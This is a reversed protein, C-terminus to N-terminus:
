IDGGMDGGFDGGDMDSSMDDAGYDGENERAGAGSEQDHGGGHDGAAFASDAGFFQHAIMSGVVTGAMASLFSGGMLGGFGMGGGMGGFTREITGPQRLEARTAMRALTPPADGGQAFAAREAEPTVASLERLVMRRQEPTLREFAEAHAQEITEPPATKLMYRYRDLAQEDEPQGAALGGGQERQPPPQRREPAKDVGRIWDLIGMTMEEGPVKEGM